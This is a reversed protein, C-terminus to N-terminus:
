SKIRKEVGKTEQGTANTWKAKREGGEMDKERM